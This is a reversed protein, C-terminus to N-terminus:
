RGGMARPSAEPLGRHHCLVEKEGYLREAIVGKKRCHDLLMNSQVIADCEPTYINASLFRIWPEMGMAYVYAERVNFREVIDKAAPFGSGAIRRTVDKERALKTSFYAGYMWSVPAGNCEMGLFLVDVDGIIRHLHEYLKPELNQSDALCMVKFDRFQILYGLKSAIDLDGHEGFFPLGMIRGEPFSIEDLEGLEVLNRFGTNQLMLKLSPDVLSMAGRAPIVWQRVKHRLQLMTEMLVHDQHNHTILVYDITDPLDAYTLRAPEADYGYSIVPDCLISVDKTEILICAHGFYRIRATDGTYRHFVEPPESTFFRRFVPEQEATIGLREKIEGYRRPTRTMAFLEDIGGHDFPIELHVSDPRPLRPTSLVFPRGDDHILYCLLTQLSRDYFRSQYLLSEKIRYTAHNHLDYVLEVYGRLVEPVRAYLADLTFGTAETALLKDLREVANAFAILPANKQLTKALLRKIEDVREGGLDIFPGGTMKPDRCAAAHAQPERIYDQLIPILRNKLSMCATAPSVLHAYAYWQAVCPEAVFNRRLYVDRDDM